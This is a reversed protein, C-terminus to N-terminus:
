AEDLMKNLLDLIKALCDNQAKFANAIMPMTPVNVVPGLVPFTTQHLGGTLSNAGVVLSKLVAVENKLKIRAQADV